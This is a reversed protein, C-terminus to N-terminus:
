YNNDLIQQMVHCAQKLKKSKIAQYLEEHLHHSMAFSTIGQPERKLFFDRITYTFNQYLNALVTNGCAQAITVHFAIDADMCAQRDEAVLANKRETLHLEMQQLHVSTHNEVALSVIEKDLMRRVANVEDFDARRLKSDIPENHTIANVITGMGQRVHVVGAMALAKIAERITSRGVEYQKMLEPEPPIKDGPKYKGKGIDQKILQSIRDSLKIRTDMCHLQIVSVFM